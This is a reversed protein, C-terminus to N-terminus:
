KFLSKFLKLLNNQTVDDVKEPHWQVGIINGYEIGEILGDDSIANVIFNDAVKDIVQHHFSNVTVENDLYKSLKTNDQITVKHSYVDSQSQYHHKAKSEEINQILSGGFFVNIAQLGRCIGIIPKNAKNFIDILNMDMNDIEPLELNDNCLTQQNYYKPNIDYGGGILLGDCMNCMEIYTQKNSPTALIIDINIKNFMKIYKDAIYFSSKDRNFRVTALLKM